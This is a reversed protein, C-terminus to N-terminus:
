RACPVCRRATPRAAMREAPITDRCRECVGYDGRSVAALAQDVDDLERADGDAVRAAEVRATIVAAADVVDGVSGDGDGDTVGMRALVRARRRRLEDRAADLDLDPDPAADAPPTSASTAM